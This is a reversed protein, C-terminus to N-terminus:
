LNDNTEAKGDRAVDGCIGRVTGGGRITERIGSDVEVPDTSYAFDLSSAERSHGLRNRRVMTHTKFLM